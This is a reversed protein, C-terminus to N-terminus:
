VDKIEGRVAKEIIDACGGANKKIEKGWFRLVTWGQKELEATVEKDREINREIKPIWFEQNSKFDKKREEWNYGHWFESDCFVAVKKGKFVLDPKGFIKTVNKQYRLGRNWLEKRLALEIESDKNKVRKMNFSIQEKTKKM